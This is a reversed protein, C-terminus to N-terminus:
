LTLVEVGHAGVYLSHEAQAVRAGTTEVLPPYAGLRGEQSLRSLSAEVLDRPFRALDRRAFPLGRQERLAAELGPDLGIGAEQGPAVRFVEPRGREAALGRGSTAFPEVALVAGIELRDSSGDPVNPV